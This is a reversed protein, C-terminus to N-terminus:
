WSGKPKSQATRGRAGSPPRAGRQRPNVGDLPRNERDNGDNAPPLEEMLIGLVVLLALAALWIVVDYQFELVGRAGREPSLRAPL